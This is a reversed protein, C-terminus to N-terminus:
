NLLYTPGTTPDEKEPDEKESYIYNLAQAGCLKCLRPGGCRARKMDETWPELPSGVIHHGHSTYM